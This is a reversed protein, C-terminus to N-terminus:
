GAGISYFISVTIWDGVIYGNQAVNLIKVSPNANLWDQIIREANTAKIGVFVKIRM